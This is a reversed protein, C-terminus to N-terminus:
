REVQGSPRIIVVPRRLGRAYRVTAWTGSRREEGREQKPLAVLTETEDVIRHNRNLYPLPERTEAAGTCFARASDWIPPHIVIRCGAAQAVGHAREDGGVCDGHHVEPAATFFEALARAQADTLGERTATIGIRV